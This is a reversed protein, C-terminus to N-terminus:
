DPLRGSHLHLLKWGVERKVWIETVVARINLESGDTRRALTQELHGTTIVMDPLFRYALPQPRVIQRVKIKETLFSLYESKGHVYGTSHVFTLDDDLLSALKPLDEAVTADCRQQELAEVAAQIPADKM